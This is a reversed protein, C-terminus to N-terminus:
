NKLGDNMTKGFNEVLINMNFMKREHKWV